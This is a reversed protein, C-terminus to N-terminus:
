DPQAFQGAAMADRRNKPLYIGDQAQDIRKQRNRVSQILNLPRIQRTPNKLNFEHIEVRAAQVGEADQKMAAEAYSSMLEKRRQILRQDTQYIASRGETANRVESPAFGLAQGAVGAAGVEDKIVIGTRDKAGEEAYRIAKVPGRLAAPLMGELGLQYRGAAIDNMGKLANIGIGAVPGLAAAMTSEALRQGELGEQVDPLILRDLGVRGSIDWPTLRSFGRAMVEAPKQGFAEALMNRLAVEADWPEDDSSGLMSAAALLTTVLPLGLVGAGAAHMALLGGLAKRAEARGEPTEAKMALQAQRAITYIMNQGFQKFLLVVKAVNGQMVRPRNSSAYDFHGDYTAKTAQEYAVEPTAGAERALRFAAVFTVQRNFREAHHFLFSAWKMVPRLKWSVKSDEGQAIGALDHANTVDITGANVAADYAQREERNLASSIDNKNTAAQKGAVALAAAAKDFGWKAGMIPYAVLATQSLNVVASAPSLGLHFVFGFSTLATSLPNSKPNMLSDNRKTVEDVVQQGKVSDYADNNVQAEVHKQMQVLGEQLQDAYRLKALYRAGHFMNQAYARRADQSYGPTGKRHIGHKAWSLDPMSALYLQNVADQLEEGVGKEDLVGFLEKLFGRGVADRAANFEKDKLVKGVQFGQTAPFSKRLEGQVTEAENLTEARSVNVVEGTINRTVVVYKGFRSLPFYVGKIKDFFEGDMRELMAAKAPKSMDSRQIKERIADRVQAYHEEYGDRADTYVKKAENSLANFAANLKGWVMRNDGPVFPKAPDIQALTADHMLEALEREDPLKGWTSAIEDANAGVENADASMQQVMRTYEPLQPILDGYLDNIQRGGLFSLGLGRYDALKNGAKRKVDTVTTAKLMDALRAEGVPDGLAMLIDTQDTPAVELLPVWKRGRKIELAEPPITKGTVYAGEGGSLLDPELSGVDFKKSIRLLVDGSGGYYRAVAENAALSTRGDSVGEFRQASNPALGNKAISALNGAPTTHFLYKSSPYQMAEWQDLIQMAEDSYPSAEPTLTPEPGSPTGAARSANRVEVGALVTGAVQVNDGTLEKFRQALMDAAKPRGAAMDGLAALREGPDQRDGGSVRRQAESAIRDRVSQAPEFSALYRAESQTLADFGYGTAARFDNEIDGHKERLKRLTDPAPQLTASYQKGTMAVAGVVTGGNDSIHSALAAFTAGQTLTDDVLLYKGGPVVDGVFDPGAFIRDLGDLQTRHPRNAQVIGTVRELGLKNALVTASAMPLQNRGTAEESVVPLVMPKAGGLAARVKDVLEDNVLSKAVKVAALMDGAKAAVYDPHATASGLTNGIVVPPVSVPNDSRAAAVVLQGGGLTRKGTQLNEMSAVLMGQLEVLTFPIKVGMKRLFAAIRALAKKVLEYGPKFKGTVPDVAMEVVHAAVEDAIQKPTLNLGAYARMVHQYSAVLHKDGRAIGANIQNMFQLHGLSGLMGRLGYHAVAEHALTRAVSEASLNNEAFIYVSGNYYLGRSKPHISVPAQSPNARVTVSPGNKWDATLSDLISQTEQLSMGKAAGFFRRFAAVDIDKAMLAVNGNETTQTEITDFFHDFAARIQPMEGATPYPYGNDVAFADEGVINALYDNSANQDQLKAIVYSEFSRAAMELGTSWYDKTRKADLVQSRQFVATRKIAGMVGAFANVMETRMKGQIGAYPTDTVFGGKQGRMRGFYNDVAHFWEHALSGAGNKRTLNIVVRNPSVEGTTDAEYHAAAPRKGGKGRAGFALGLEGNLSLARPTVGIVGALDMLADYAQNLNSQREGQPMSAGFQEGRFGFVERFQENTIDAGNRHDIGVRPSNSARREPPIYKAAELLKVLEDQHAARYERAEKVTEFTKLDISSSATTRKGLIVGPKGRYTYIDFTMPKALSKEPQQKALYEKFKEIAAEKTDGTAVDIGWSGGRYGASAKTSQQNVVWLTKPTDYKVGGYMNFEHKQFSVGKLSHEHGVAEYLEVKNFWKELRFAVAARTIEERTREGNLLARAFDRLMAVKQAWAKVKWPTSPKTPVEDRSARAFAVTWPDAGDELMRQYEPEPWSKALPQAAIDMGMAEDLKAAYAKAYLKRAGELVEGSDDIKATKSQEKAITEIAVPAKAADAKAAEEPKEVPTRPLEQIAPMDAREANTLFEAERSGKPKHALETVTYEGLVVKRIDGAEYVTGGDLGPGLKRWGELDPAGKTVVDYKMAWQPANEDVDPDIGANAGLGTDGDRPADIEKRDISQPKAKPEAAAPQTTDGEKLWGKFEDMTMSKVPGVKWGKDFNSKYAKVAQPQAKFGVMVKHEDFSGTKQDLQDVVFVRNSDPQPGVYVDVQENDAGVTRKIYGYHDSMTHSWTTGDPATGSRQSGKPNEVTIDLGQVTIHGKKYNGAEKQAETPESLANLPSTAAAHAAEDIAAAEPAAAKAATQQASDDTRTASIGDAEVQAAGAPKGAAPQGAAAAREAKPAEAAHAETQQQESARAPETKVDDAVTKIAAQAQTTLGLARKQEELAKKAKSKAADRRQVNPDAEYEAQIKALAKQYTQEPSAVEKSAPAQPKDQVAEITQADVSEGNPQKPKAVTQIAPQARPTNAAAPNAPSKRVVFGGAVPAVEFGPGQRKATIAALGRQKPPFIDGSKTLVDGDLVGAKRMTEQKDHFAAIEYDPTGKVAIGFSGDKKPLPLAQISAGGARKQSSIYKRAEDSTKFTGEADNTPKAKKADEAAAKEASADAMRQTLGSNVAQAAAASVPGASANLGLKEAPTKSPRSEVDTVDADRQAQRQSTTMAQGATDVTITPAPLLPPQYQQAPGQGAETEVINGRVQPARQAQRQETTQAVGDPGVTVVPPSLLRPSGPAPQEALQAAARSIPGSAVGAAAGGTVGGVLLGQAAAAGAGEDWPKGQAINQAIQEQYSQPMEQLAAETTIGEAVKRILGKRAGTAAADAGVVGVRGSALMTNLDGIGLKNALKGSLGSIIGTALGSGALIASQGATLTGNPDEQRVQEANQGAAVAGEGIAGAGIAGIRPAVALAGRSVVGGALMSPASEAVANAITSPNKVMAGVTPIFGDAASVEANAAKQEPSYFDSLIAKAEKPRFGAREAILGARGGTMLDAMGVAAEPVGIVGKGVSIATDALRRIVGSPKYPTATSADFDTAGAAPQATSADFDM